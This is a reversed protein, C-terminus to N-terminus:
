NHDYGYVYICPVDQIEVLCFLYMPRKQGFFSFFLLMHEMSRM